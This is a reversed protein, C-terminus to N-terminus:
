APQFLLPLLPLSSRPQMAMVLEQMGLPTDHAPVAHHLQLLTFLHYGPPPLLRPFAVPGDCGEAWM